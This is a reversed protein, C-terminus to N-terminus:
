EAVDSGGAGPMVKFSGVWFGVVVPVSVNTLLVAHVQFTCKSSPSRKLKEGRNGHDLGLRAVCSFHTNHGIIAGQVALCNHMFQM